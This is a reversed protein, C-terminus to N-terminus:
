NQTIIVSCKPLARGSRADECRAMHAIHCCQASPMYERPADRRRRTGEDYSRSVAILRLPCFTLKMLARRIVGKGQQREYMM